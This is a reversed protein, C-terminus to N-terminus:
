VEGARERLRAERAAIRENVPLKVVDLVTRLRYVWDHKLLANTVNNRRAREVRAPDADLEAIVEGIHPSNFEIPVVSDPWGFQEDFEEARPPAGIMVAGAAAGEYFRAPVEDKGGTLYPRDAWARNAIFYRSRKLVNALLGRHERHNAVRFSIPTRGGMTFTDHHYFLNNREALELLAQHTLESRRGVSCVDIFRPPEQGPRPCFRDTDIGMPLYTVPRETIRAITEVSGRVGVFIHDFDHLLEVLYRPLDADWAECLYCAAFRTRERWGRIANLAYLEHPHNFFPLFVDYSQALSVAGLGPRVTEAINASGTLYRVARYINRGVHLGDTHTVISLDAGLLDAVLDEFEYLACSGVLDHIRRMSMMLLKSNGPAPLELSPTALLLPNAILRM